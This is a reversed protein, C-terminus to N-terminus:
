KGQNSAPDAPGNQFYELRSIEHADSGRTEDLNFRRALDRIRKVMTEGSERDPFPEKGNQGPTWYPYDTELGALGLPILEEIMQELKFPAEKVLYGPHALIPTGGAGIILRTADSISPKPVAAAVSINKKLWRAAERYDDFLGQEMMSHVLHPKMLTDRHPLFVQEREVVTRGFHTNIAAIQLSTKQRRQQQTQALHENLPRDGLHIGYGLLHIEYEKYEADLEIGPILELALSRAMAFLDMDFNRYAGIADHDTFSIRQLGLRAAASLIEDPRNKGDSVLTHIHLDSYIDTM